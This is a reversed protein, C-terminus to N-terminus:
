QEKLKQLLTDIGRSYFHMVLKKQTEATKQSRIEPNKLVAGNWNPMMWKGATLASFGDRNPLAKESWFSLYYYPEDIMSDPIAWGIGISQLLEGNKNKSIPLFAGTDFHHPWIRIPEPNNFKKVVENLVIKANHRYTICENTYKEDELKFVAGEDLSHAPIEYHLKNKFNVVEIGLNLLSQNLEDFVDQKTKGYLSISKLPKKNKDRIRLTLDSLSLALQFGNPLENGLFLNGDAVFQMNTNSDDAQQPILYKGVLAIFQAAQHQLQLTNKINSDFPLTQIKWANLHTDM